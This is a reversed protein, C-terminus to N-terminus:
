SKEGQTKDRSVHDHHYFTDKRPLFLTLLSQLTGLLVSEIALEKLNKIPTNKIVQTWNVNYKKRKRTKQLTTLFWESSKKSHLEQRM